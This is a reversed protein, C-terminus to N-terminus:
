PLRIGTQGCTEFVSLLNTLGLLESIQKNLNILRLDCGGKRASVYLGIIAGLGASDMRVLDSLDLVIPMKRPFINKIEQKLFDSTDSTLRGQCKVITLDEFNQTHLNLTTSNTLNSSM